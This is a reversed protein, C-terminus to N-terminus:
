AEFQGIMYIGYRASRKRKRIKAANYKRSNEGNSHMKIRLVDRKKQLLAGCRRTPGVNSFGFRTHM